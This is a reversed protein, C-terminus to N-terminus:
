GVNGFPHIQKAPIARSNYPLSIMGHKIQARYSGNGSASFSLQFVGNSGTRVSGITRWRHKAKHQVFVKTRKGVPARGWVYGNGHKVIAIVPFEFAVQKLSPQAPVNVLPSVPAGSAPPFIKFWTVLSTGTRWFEYMSWAIYRAAVPLPDGLQPVPPNSYWEWETVWLRTHRGVTHLKEAAALLARAKGMDAVLTDDYRYAHKTPTVALSYPHLTLADFPAPLCQSTRVYHTHVRRLCMLSAAFQLPSIVQDKVYVPSLGGMGVVNDGHVSKISTYAATLLSRYEGILDPAALYYVSANEENWIEYLKVRPLSTGPHLPDPFQRQLPAGPRTHFGPVAGCESGLPRGDRASPAPGRGGTGM